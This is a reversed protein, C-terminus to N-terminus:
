EKMKRSCIDRYNIHREGLILFAREDEQIQVRWGKFKAKVKKAKM